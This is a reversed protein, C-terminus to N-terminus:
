PHCLFIYKAICAPVRHLFAQVKLFFLLNIVHRLNLLSSLLFWNSLAIWCHLYCNHTKNSSDWRKCSLHEWGNLLQITHRSPQFKQKTLDFQQYWINFTSKKKLVVGSLVILNLLTMQAVAATLLSSWRTLLRKRSCIPSTFFRNFIVCIERM